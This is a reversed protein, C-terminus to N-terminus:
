LSVSIINELKFASELKNLSSSHSIRIMRDLLQREEIYTRFINREGWLFVNDDELEISIDDYRDLNNYIIMSQLAQEVILLVPATIDGINIEAIKSVLPCFSSLEDNTVPVWLCLGEVNLKWNGLTFVM